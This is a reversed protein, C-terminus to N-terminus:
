VLIEPQNAKQALREVIKRQINGLTEGAAKIQGAFPVMIYGQEDVAQEPLTTSHSTAIGGGLVNTTASGFLTAPAAEWITVELVDGFGVTRTAIRANTLTESFLRLQQQATLKDTVSDDIDILQIAASNAPAEANEIQHRSPGITPVFSECGSIALAGLAALITVPIRTM